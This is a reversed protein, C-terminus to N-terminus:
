FQVGDRGLLRQRLRDYRSNGLLKKALYLGSGKLRKSALGRGTSAAEFGSLSTTRMVATRCVQFLGCRNRGIISTSISRYGASKVAAVVRENWRGGACSFHHVEGGLIEELRKKSGAIEDAMANVPIDPLYQHTAGHSGIEFGNNALERVQGADLFGPSGLLGSSVFFTASCGHAKLIPAAVLLDTECGDDFTLAVSDPLWGEKLARGLSVGRLGLASLRQLQCAFGEETVVYRVYGPDVSCLLRGAREIEHYM